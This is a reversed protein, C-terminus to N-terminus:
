PLDSGELMAALAARARFVRSLVTGRPIDLLEAIEDTSLGRQMRLVFPERLRYSLRGVADELVVLGEVGTVAGRPEVTLVESTPEVPEALRRRGNLQSLATNVAIRRLWTALSAEGRFQRAKHAARAFVDQLADEADHHHHLVSVVAKYLPLRHRDVLLGFAEKDGDLYAALLEEDSADRERAPEGEEAPRPERGALAAGGPPPQV